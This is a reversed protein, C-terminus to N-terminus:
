NMFNLRIRGDGQTLIELTDLSGDANLTETLKTPGKITHENQLEGDGISLLIANGKGAPEYELAFLPAGVDPIDIEDVDLVESPTAMDVAILRGRNSATVASLFESWREQHIQKQESM